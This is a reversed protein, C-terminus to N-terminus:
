QLAGKDIKMITKFLVNIGNVMDHPSTYEDPSHSIGNKSPVFIMGVPCLVSMDQTDHLAGSPMLNTTLKLEQASLMILHQIRKDTLAPKNYGKSVFTAKTGNLATLSDAAKKIKNFVLEMKEESLDRLDLSIVAKGPIVNSAGPTVAIQGVTAVQRGTFSLAADNIAVILKAATLLADRRLKMPTTGAHNAMGEITIDFPKLGVIGEVVGIDLGSTELIAGQEIHLELFAAFETSSRKAKLIEDANGGIDNIGQRITKGSNSIFALREAPFHGTMAKSGTLSGEEDTFVIVELPHDTIIKNKNLIEICAIAGLVGLDGDYIGGAPVADIHSGFSIYPLSPNSGKRRGIINGAADVTVTLGVSKMLNIIYGRAAIDGESFAVRKLVGPTNAGYAALAKIRGEVRNADALAVQQAFSANIAVLVTLLISILFRKLMMM